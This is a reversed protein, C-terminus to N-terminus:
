AFTSVPSGGGGGGAGGAAGGSSPQQTNIHLTLAKFTV